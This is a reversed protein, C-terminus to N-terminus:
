RGGAPAQRPPATRAPSPEAVRWTRAGM